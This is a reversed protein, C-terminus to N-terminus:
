SEEVAQRSSKMEARFAKMEQELAQIIMRRQGPDLGERALTRYRRLNKPTFFRAMGLQEASLPSAAAFAHVASPSPGRVATRDPVPKIDCIM